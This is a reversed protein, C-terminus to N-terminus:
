EAGGEKMMLISGLVMRCDKLIESFAYRFQVPRSLNAGLVLVGYDRAVELEAKLISPDALYMECRDPTDYLAPVSYHTSLRKGETGLKTFQKIYDSKVKDSKKSM